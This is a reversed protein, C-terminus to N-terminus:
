GSPIDIEGAWDSPVPRGFLKSRSTRRRYIGFRTPPLTSVDPDPTLSVPPPDLAVHLTTSSRDTRVTKGDHPDGVLEVLIM